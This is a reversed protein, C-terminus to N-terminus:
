NFCAYDTEYECMGFPVIMPVIGSQEQETAMAQQLLGMGEALKDNKKSFQRMRQWMDATTLAMLANDIGRILPVSLDDRLDVFQRKGLIYLFKAADSENYHVMIHLFSRSLEEPYLQVMLTDSTGSKGSITGTSAAKSISYVYDYDNVTSVSTTGTLVVTEHRREPIYNINGPALTADFYDGQILISGTDSADSSFFELKEHPAIEYTALSNLVSFGTTSGVATFADPNMQMIACQQSGQLQVGSTRNGLRVSVVEGIEAPLVIHGGTTQDNEVNRKPELSKVFVCTADRWNAADWIERWRARLFLECQRATESDTKGLQACIYDRMGVRNM